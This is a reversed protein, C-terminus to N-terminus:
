VCMTNSVLKWIIPTTGIDFRRLGPCNGTYEMWIDARDGPELAQELSIMLIDDSYGQTTYSAPKGNLKLNSFELFGPSFGDPYARSMEEPPFVAKEEYTFSNPYIHFYIYTISDTM